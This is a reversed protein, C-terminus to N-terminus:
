TSPTAHKPKRPLKRRLYWAILGSGVVTPGYRHLPDDWWNGTAFVPNTLLFATWAAIYSAGMLTVHRRLLRHANHGAGGARVVRVAHWGLAVAVLTLCGIVVLPPSGLSVALPVSLAAMGLMAVAYTRGALRHVVRWRGFKPAALAVLGLVFGAGGLGIHVWKAVVAIEAVAGWERAIARWARLRRILLETAYSFAM